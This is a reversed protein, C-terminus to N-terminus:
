KFLISSCLAGNYIVLFLLLSVCIFAEIVLFTTSVNIYYNVYKSLFPYKTTLKYREIVYISLIYGLINLLFYLAILSITFMHFSYQVFLNGEESLDKHLINLIFPMIFCYKYNDLKGNSLGFQNVKNLNIGGAIFSLNFSHWTNLFLIFKVCAGKLCLLLKIAISGLLGRWWITPLPSPAKYISMQGSKILFRIHKFRYYVLYLHYILFCSSIVFLIYICINPYPLILYKKSILLLTSIGGIVRFIRIEPLMTFDIIDKPLTPTTFGKKAASIFRKTLTKNNM